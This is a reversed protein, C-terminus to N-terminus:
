KQLIEAHTLPKERLAIPSYYVEISNDRGRDDQFRDLRQITVGYHNMLLALAKVYEESVKSGYAIANCSIQSKTNTSDIRVNFGAQSLTDLLRASNYDTHKLYYHVLAKENATHGVSDAARHRSLSDVTMLSDVWRATQNVPALAAMVSDNIKARVEAKISDSLALLASTDSKIAAIKDERSPPKALFFFTLVLSAGGLMLLTTAFYRKGTAKKERRSQEQLSHEM